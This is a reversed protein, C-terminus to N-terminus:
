TMCCPRGSSARMISPMSPNLTITLVWPSTMLRRRWADLDAMVINEGRLPGLVELVEGSSLRGNGRVVIDDIQLVGAHTVVSGGRYVAYISLAMLAAVKLAPKTFAAVHGRKRGPKVHARRFRRDSPAAVPSM